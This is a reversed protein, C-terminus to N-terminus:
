ALWGAIAVLIAAIIGICVGAIMADLDDDTM